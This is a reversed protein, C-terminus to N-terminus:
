FRVSVEGVRSELDGDGCEVAVVEVDVAVDSGNWFFPQEAALVYTATRGAVSLSLRLDLVAPAAWVEVPLRLEAVFGDVVPRITAQDSWAGPERGARLRVRDVRVSEAAALRWRVTLAATPRRDGADSIWLRSWTRRRVIPPELAAASM